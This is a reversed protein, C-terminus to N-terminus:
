SVRVGGEGGYECGDMTKAEDSYLQLVDQPNADPYNEVLWDAVDAMSSDPANPVPMSVPM